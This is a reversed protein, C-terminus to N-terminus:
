PRIVLSERRRFRLADKDFIEIDRRWNGARPLVLRGEYRGDGREDLRVERDEAARVRSHYRVVVRLGALPAGDRANLRAVLHRERPTAGATDALDLEWGLAAQERAAAIERNYDRGHRYADAEEVGDYRVTAFWILAGNALFVVGFFAIFALLAHRGTLQKAMM